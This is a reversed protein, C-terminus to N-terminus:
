DGNHIKEKKPSHKGMSKKGLNTEPAMTHLYELYSVPLLRAQSTTGWSPMIVNSKQAYPSGKVRAPAPAELVSGRRPYERTTSIGPSATAQLMSSAPLARAAALGRPPHAHSSPGPGFTAFNKEVGLFRFGSRWAHGGIRGIKDQIVTATKQM